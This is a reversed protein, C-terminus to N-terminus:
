HLVTDTWESVWRDRNAGITAASLELPQSVVPNFHRFVTPEQVGDRVPLVFMTLPMAVQFRPSLLFDILEQAGQENHAGRLVGALEIQRFCSDTVVGVPSRSLKKGAFVVAAAPDTSYSVVIPYRGHASGGTFRANYAEEWGDVVLVRNDRLKAWYGRWGDDGYRAVTALMFALGPTSTAPNEVVLLGRYRPNTLDDISRPPAIGRAAFWTRDYDVCVESHDIPTVRRRPDLVYEPAVHALAPPQYPVFLDGALARSLLNNDVGFFVDGQPNGATLLATTLAQGADGSQLIRLKLGSEREFAAREKKTIVFSDHTVLVVDSPLGGGGCGALAAALTIAAVTAVFRLLSM